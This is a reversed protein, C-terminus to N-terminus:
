KRLTKLATSGCLVITNTRMHVGGGRRCIPIAFLLSVSVASHHVYMYPSGTQFPGANIALLGWFQSTSKLCDPVPWTKVYAIQPDWQLDEPGEIRGM